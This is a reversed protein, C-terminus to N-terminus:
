HWLHLHICGSWGDTFVDFVSFFFSTSFVILFHKGISKWDRNTWLNEWAFEAALAKWNVKGPGTKTDKTWIKKRKVEKDKSTAESDKTQIIDETDEMEIAEEAKAISEETM